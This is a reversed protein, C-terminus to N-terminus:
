SGFKLTKEEFFPNDNGSCDIVKYAIAKDKVSYFILVAADVKMAKAYLWMQNDYGLFKILSNINKIPEHTIKLDWVRNLGFKDLRGKIPMILGKYNLEGVWSLQSELSEWLEFGFEKVIYNSIQCSIKYFPSSIDAKEPETLISDVLSGIKVKDSPNFAPTVGGVEMKLFSNSYAKIKLYESFDVNRLIEVNQMLIM